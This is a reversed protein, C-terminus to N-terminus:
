RGIRWKILGNLVCPGVVCCLVILTFYDSM